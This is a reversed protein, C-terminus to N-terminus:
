DFKHLLVSCEQVDFSNVAVFIQDAIEIFMKLERKEACEKLYLAFSEISEMNGSDKANTLAIELGVCEEKFVSLSFKNDSINDVTEKVPEIECKLFKSFSNLLLTFDVPKLLFDDFIQNEPEDKTNVVSATLAIVPIDNEDKILKTAEYGNMVPMKIDMLILDPKQSRAIEVAIEGNEAELITFPMAKFYERLLNRNMDIDDVVLILAEEFHINQELIEDKKMYNEVIEVEKLDMIFTSGQGEISEVYVNANMMESLKSVIALGLGTGGYVKASQQSQQTFSEFISKQEEKTIGIGSDKVSILLDISNKSNYKNTRINVEVGGEHTFKIANSILNFLIQSIRVEDLMLALPVSTDVNIEFKLNKARAKQTFVSKLEKSIDLMSVATHEITLKGAEVKSLDLIDNILSLLLKSSDKISKVYNEKVADLNEKQLLSTFGIIANMPTRIEHSMNALFESKMNNAVIAEQKADELESTRIKVMSELNTNVSNLANRSRVLELKDRQMLSIIKSLVFWEFLVFLIHLLVIDLGCGYNFVIIPTDFLSINAEQLYNFILHHVAIFVTGLSMPIIDKYIILFSLLVFIYFHMEIRGQSQQILIITFSMLVLAVINRYALTGKFFKYSFLTTLFLVGGLFPAFFYSNYLVIGIASVFFWQFAILKLMFLDENRFSSYVLEIYDRNRSLLNENSM